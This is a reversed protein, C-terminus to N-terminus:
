PCYQPDLHVWFGTVLEQLEQPAGL